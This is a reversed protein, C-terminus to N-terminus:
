IKSLGYAVGLSLQITSNANKDGGQLSEDMIDNLGLYARLDTNLWVRSAM